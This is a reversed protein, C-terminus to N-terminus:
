LIRLEEVKDPFLEEVAKNFKNKMWGYKNSTDVRDKPIKSITKRLDSLYSFFTDNPTDGWCDLKLISNFSDFYKNNDFDLCFIKKSEEDLKSFAEESLIIRPFIAVKSELEYAEILAPGFVIENDHYLKGYSIAGRCLMQYSILNAIIVSIQSIRELNIKPFSVIIHDSFETVKLEPDDNDWYPMSKIALANFIYEVKTRGPVSSNIIDKFGLIDIYCVFVEQYFKDTLTVGGFYM